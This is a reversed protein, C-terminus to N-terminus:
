VGIRLRCSFALTLLMSNKKWQTVPKTRWSTGLQKGKHQGVANHEKFTDWM